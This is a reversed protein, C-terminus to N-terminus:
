PFIMNTVPTPDFERLCFNMLVIYMISALIDIIHM